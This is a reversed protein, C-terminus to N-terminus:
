PRQYLALKHELKQRLKELRIIEPLDSRDNRSLLANLSALTLQLRDWRLRHIEARTPRKKVALVTRPRTILKEPTGKM